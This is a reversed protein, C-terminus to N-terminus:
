LLPRSIDEVQHTNLPWGVVAFHLANRCTSVVFCVLSHILHELAGLGGLGEEIRNEGCWDGANTTMGDMRLDQDEVM